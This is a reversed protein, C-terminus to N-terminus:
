QTADEYPRRIQEVQAAFVHVVSLAALVAIPPKDILTNEAMEAAGILKDLWEVLEARTESSEMSKEFAIIEDRSVCLDTLLQESLEEM